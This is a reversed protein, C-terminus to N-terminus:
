VKKKLAEKLSKIESSSMDDLMKNLKDDSEDISIAKGIKLRKNVLYDNSEEVVESVEEESGEVMKDIAKEDETLEVDEEKIIHDDHGKEGEKHDGQNTSSTSPKEKFDGNLNDGSTKKDEIAHDYNTEELDGTFGIGGASSEMLNDNKFVNVRDGGFSENISLFKLNLQKIAKAYTPYAESKKNKLGGIYSFNEAILDTKKESTKIYYEHNERVIGYVIGNPGVKTLEVVSNNISENITGGMLERMRDLVQNGKLGNPKIRSNKNM